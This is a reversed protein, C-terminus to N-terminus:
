HHEVHLCDRFIIREDVVENSSRLSLDAESVTDGRLVNYTGGFSSLYDSSSFTAEIAGGLMYKRKLRLIAQEARYAVYSIAHHILASQAAGFFIDPPICSNQCDVNVECIQWIKRYCLAM